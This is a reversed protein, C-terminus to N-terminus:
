EVSGLMNELRDVFDKHIRIEAASHTVSIPYYAKKYSKDIL